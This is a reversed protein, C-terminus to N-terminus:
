GYHQADVGAATNETQVGAPEVLQALLAAIIKALAGVAPSYQRGCRLEVALVGTCGSSTLLPVALAGNTRCNVPVSCAEGSRFAAATANDAERPVVPLQAVVRDPYGHVLSPRLAEVTPDWLWVILGSADLLSAAQKLLSEVETADVARALDTCLRAVQELDPEPAPVPEPEAEAPKQEAEYSEAQESPFYPTDCDDAIGFTESFPEPISAAIAELENSSELELSPAAPRAQLTSPGNQAPSSGNAGGGSFLSELPGSKRRLSGFASGVVSRIGSGSRGRPNARDLTSAMAVIVDDEPPDPHELFEQVVKDPDLDIAIAYARVFSRRYIKSPWNSLDDRELGELLAEKIKTQRAIAALSIGLEERRQRLRAGFSEPM